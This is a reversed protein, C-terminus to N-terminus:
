FGALNLLNGDGLMAAPPVVPPAGDGLAVPGLKTSALSLEGNVVGVEFCEFGFVLNKDGEYSVMGSAAASTDVKLNGSAVSQLAPADLEAATNNSREAQVTFKSTKVTRSIIYLRGNGLVYQELILNGADVVGARLYNGVDLPKVSDSLV